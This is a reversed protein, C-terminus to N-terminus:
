CSVISVRVSLLLHRHISLTEWLENGREGVVIFGLGGRESTSLDTQEISLCRRMFQLRTKIRVSSQSHRVQAM